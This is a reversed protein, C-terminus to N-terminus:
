CQPVRLMSGELVHSFKKQPDSVVEVNLLALVFIKCRASSARCFSCVACASAVLRSQSLQSTTPNVPLHTVFVQPILVPEHSRVTQM